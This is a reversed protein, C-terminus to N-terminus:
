VNSINGFVTMVMTRNNYSPFESESGPQTVDEGILYVHLSPIDSMNLPSDGKTARVYLERMLTREIESPGTYDLDLRNIARLLPLEDYALGTKPMGLFSTRGVLYDGLYVNISCPLPLETRDVQVEIFWQRQSKSTARPRRASASDGYLRNIQVIVDEKRGQDESPIDQYTYGFAEITAMTKGTHFTRGDAQYFPKLPSDATIIEGRATSYLGQSTFPQSQWIDHHSATWM